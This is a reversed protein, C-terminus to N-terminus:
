VAIRYGRRNATELAIAAPGLKRRLRNVTVEVTHGDVEAGWAVAGLREKSLVRGGSGLMVELLRRERPTLRVEREDVLLRRGQHRIACGALDVTVARSALREALARVMAGLRSPDSVIVPSLAADFAAAGTVPGVCACVTEAIRLAGALEVHAAVAEVAARSTFTIADLEGAAALTALRELPGPPGADTRYVPVPVVTAGASRLTDCFWSLDSGHQQVGIRTGGVGLDLLDALVEAMTEGGPRFAVPVGEGVLVGVAKAGRAVVRSHRLRDLVAPGMDWTWAMALWARAGIASTIVMHDLPDAILLGTAHRTEAEAVPESVVAPALVVDAGRRQLLAAQEAARREATVGITWGALLDMRAHDSPQM